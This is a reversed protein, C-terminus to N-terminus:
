KAATKVLGKVFSAKERYTFYEYKGIYRDALDLFLDKLRDSAFPGVEIAQEPEQGIKYEEGSKLRKLATLVGMRKSYPDSPNRRSAAVRLKYKDGEKIVAGVVTVKAVVEVLNTEALGSSEPDASRQVFIQDYGESLAAIEDKIKQEAEQAEQVKKLRNEVKKSRPRVTETAEAVTEVAKEAAEKMNTKIQTLDAKIEQAEESTVVENKAATYADKIVKAGKKLNDLLSM